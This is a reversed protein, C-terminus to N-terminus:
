TYSRAAPPAGTLATSGCCRACRGSPAAAPSWGSCEPWLTGGRVPVSGAAGGLPPVSLNVDVHHQVRPKDNARDM